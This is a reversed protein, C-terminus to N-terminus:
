AFLCLYPVWNYCNFIIYSNIVMKRDKKLPCNRFSRVVPSRPRWSHPIKISVSGGPEEGTARGRGGGELLLWINNEWVFIESSRCYAVLQKWRDAKTIAFTIIGIRYYRYRVVISEIREISSMNKQQDWFVANLFVWFDGRYLM